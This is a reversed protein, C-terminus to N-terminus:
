MQEASFTAQFGILPLAAESGGLVVSSYAQTFITVALWMLQLGKGSVIRLPYMVQM